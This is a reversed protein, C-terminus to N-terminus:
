NSIMSASRFTPQDGQMLIGPLNPRCERRGARMGDWGGPFATVLPFLGWDHVNIIHYEQNQRFVSVCFKGGPRRSRMEDLVGNPIVLTDTNRENPIDSM